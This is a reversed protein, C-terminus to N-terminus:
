PGSYELEHQWDSLGVEHNGACADSCHEGDVMGMADVVKGCYACKRKGKPLRSVV